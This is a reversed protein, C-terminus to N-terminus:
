EQLSAFQGSVWGVQNNFQIKYWGAQTEGLYAYSSGVPAFGVTAGSVSATTRVRLVEENNQFFNTPKITVTPGTSNTQASTTARRTASPTSGVLSANLQASTTAMPDVVIDNNTNVSKALKVTISIRHGKVANITHKQTNYSPLSVQFQHHGPEIDTVVLPSFQQQGDDIRVIANDPITVFSLEAKDTKVAEMEYIIGGSTEPRDGPKWTVVTLLGKRLQVQTEHPTLEADEPQIKLTYTGPKITKNIYPTKDLYQGDLFLTSPIENTIVQLGAVNKKDLLSCGGLLLSSILVVVLLQWRPMKMM